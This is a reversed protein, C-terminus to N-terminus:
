RFDGAAGAPKTGGGFAASDPGRTHTVRPVVRTSAAKKVPEEAVPKVALEPAVKLEIMQLDPAPAVPPTSVVTQRAEAVGYVYHYGTFAAAALVPVFWLAARLERSRPGPEGSIVWASPLSRDAPLFEVPGPGFGAGCGHCRGADQANIAECTACLKLDLSASCATCSAEGAKNEQGCALCKMTGM